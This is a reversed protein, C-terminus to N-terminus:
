SGRAAARERWVALRAQMADSIGGSAAVVEEVEVAQGDAAAVVPLLENFVAEVGAVERVVQEARAVAAEAQALDPAAAYGSLYVNGLLSAVNMRDTTLGVAPDMALAVAARCEIEPDALLENKVAGVGPVTRALRGALAKMMTSRVHGSLTIVEGETMVGIISGTQRIPDYAWLAGEVATALDQTLHEAPHEIPHQAMLAATM